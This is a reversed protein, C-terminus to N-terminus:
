LISFFGIFDWFVFETWFSTGNKMVEFLIDCYYRFPSVRQVRCIYDALHYPYLQLDIHIINCEVLSTFLVFMHSFFDQVWTAYNDITLETYFTIQFPSIFSCVSLNRQLYRMMEEYYEAERYVRRAFCTNWQLRKRICYNL